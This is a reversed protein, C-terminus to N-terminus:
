KDLHAGKPVPFVFTGELRAPNQNYFEEDVATVAVQDTIRTNVKVSSVELPAFLYPRPPVPRPPWPPPIPRPPLPGPWWSADEVIILGAGPCRFSGSVGLVVFCLAWIWRKM